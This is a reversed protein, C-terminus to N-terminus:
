EAVTRRKASVACVWISVEYLLLLPLAMLVQSIPDPPTLIAAVVFIALIAYSRFRRLLRATVLGIRALFFALVPMEFVLGFALILRVVFGVYEDVAWQSTMEPPELSLFFRLGLPLVASYAVLAGLAFCGVSLLVIPVLLRRERRLLGPAVFQWIQYLIVPLALVAGGVLAIELTVMFYTTPRLAQLQRTAPLRKGEGEPPTEAVEDGMWSRLLQQAMYVVGASRNTELSAVAEKYPRILLDMLTDSFAFCVITGVLIAGLSKLIRWRLEELHDLFPMEAGRPEVDGSSDRAVLPGPEQRQLEEPM